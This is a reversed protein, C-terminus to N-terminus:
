KQYHKTCIYGHKGLVQIVYGIDNCTLNGMVIKGTKFHEVRIFYTKM